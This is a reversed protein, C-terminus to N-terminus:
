SASMGGDVGIIQGTIYDSAPAALFVIAGKLEGGEGLRGLPTIAKIKEDAREVVSASLRTPFFGPALANVRIGDGAYHVALERTLAILAGKSATYSSAELIDKPVGKLGMISAINIVKGYGQKKMAPLVARTMLQTGIVNTELVKRWADVTMEEYPAGWSIGANNVLIDIRGYRDLVAAALKQTQEEDAIDCPFSFSDFGCAKFERATPELWQERRAALVVKAGAEALGEAAEKGLGRSAGTVIAVRGELSFLQSISKMPSKTAYGFPENGSRPFDAVIVPVM